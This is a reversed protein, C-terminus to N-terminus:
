FRNCRLGHSGGSPSVRIQALMSPKAILSSAYEDGTGFAFHRNSRVM